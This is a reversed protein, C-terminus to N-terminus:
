YLSGHCFKFNLSFQNSSLDKVNCNMMVKSLIKVSEVEHAMNYDTNKYCWSKPVTVELGSSSANQRKLAGDEPTGKRRKFKVPENKCQLIGRTKQKNVQRLKLDSFILLIV